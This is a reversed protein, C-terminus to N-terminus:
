SPSPVDIVGDLCGSCFEILGRKQESPATNYDNPGEHYQVTGCGDSTVNVTVGTGAIAGSPTNTNGKCRWPKEASCDVDSTECADFASCDITAECFDGTAISNLEDTNNLTAVTWYSPPADVTANMSENGRSDIKISNLNEASCPCDTSWPNPDGTVPDIYEECATNNDAGCNPAPIADDAIRVNIVGSDLVAALQGQLGDVTINSRDLYTSDETNDD